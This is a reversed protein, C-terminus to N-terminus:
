ITIQLIDPKITMFSKLLLKTSKSLFCGILLDYRIFVTKQNSSKPTRTHFEFKFVCGILVDYGISVTNQNSSILTYTHFNQEFTKHSHPM